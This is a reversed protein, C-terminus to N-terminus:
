EETVKKKALIKEAERKLIIAAWGNFSIGVKAAAKHLRKNDAVLLRVSQVIDGTTKTSRRGVTKSHTRAQKKETM